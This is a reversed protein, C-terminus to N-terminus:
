VIRMEDIEDLIKNIKRTIFTKIPIYLDIDDESNWICVNMFNVEIFYGDSVLSLYFNTNDGDYIEFIKDNLNGVVEAIKSIDMDIDIDM